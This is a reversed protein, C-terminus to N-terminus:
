NHEFKLLILLTEGATTSGVADVDLTLTDGDTFTTTDFSTQSGSTAGDAITIRNAQNSAWISSGNKNIDCIIAAGTPATKVTAYVKVLTLSTHAIPIVFSKGTGVTLIEDLGFSYIPRIAAAVNQFNTNVKASEAKTNNNFTNLTIM